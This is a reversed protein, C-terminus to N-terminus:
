ATPAAGPAPPLERIGGSDIRCQELLRMVALTERPPVFLPATGRIAAAFNAFVDLQRSADVPVVEEQAEIRDHPYRRAESALHPDLTKPPLAAPDFWRVRFSKGQQQVLGTNGWVVFEYPNGVSAQSITCDAVVGDATELVVKVVDDADGLSAVRQLSCWSRRIDGGVLHLVQDLYHAGYNALMGGGYRRLSQWDNRRAFSFAGRQVMTIRGIRGDALIAKLHQFYAALRHPQYVTLVRGAEEAATVIREAEAYGTAMPKELLIHLGQRLAEMVMPEHLHTPTAIVVADLPVGRCMAAFDAFAACGHTQEAEARRAPETDAVAALHWDPHQALRACHFNWGIRGLGAVGIHFPKRDM